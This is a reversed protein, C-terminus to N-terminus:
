APTEAKDPTDALGFRWTGDDAVCQRLTGAERLWALHALTEGLALIDDAAHRLRPFLAGMAEFATCEGQAALHHTLTDFQQRHHERLEQVRAHLGRFPNQHSPLVLTGPACRDLRDLSRFWLALPNGEPEFSSVLVNSSIRPLLQDGSILLRDEACYLCAHEPSHGEGILVQWHRPGILLVDGDRLRRYQGQRPPMFPDRRLADFLRAAREAPLGARAYFERQEPPPPDTLTGGLVRMTLFEALTMYLPVGFRETIWAALGAHDYHFHTCVLAEVPLGDLHREVIREWLAKTTETALGTDVITWGTECRLLWVNVHDLSMPMPMRAWLVGPAVEVVEGDAAPASFPYQLAEGPRPRRAAPSGDNNVM